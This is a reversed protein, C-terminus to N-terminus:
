EQEVKVWSQTQHSKLIAANVREARYGDAFTPYGGKRTGNRIDDYVRTFLNKVVDPYGEPHGGPYHALQAAERSMLSADKPLTQSPTERRGIWLNNPDEQNWVMSKKTGDVEMWLRNKRGASVQSVLFSGRAGNAFRILVTAADETKIEVPTGSKKENTFTENSGSEPRMRTKHFTQLDACVEVIPSGTIYQALDCWHSGIDGIARLAGGCEPEVRWNYDTEFLLWDQLYSGHVLLINGIDGTSVNEMAQRVLPYMRYNYNIANIIGAKQAADYMTKSETENMGLPKESVLHKGAAIVVMNIPYHLVNPTCNHVVQIEPDAVLDEWCKHAKPISLKKAATEAEAPTAAAIAVVEVGPVRRLAEVHVPGIFGAGIVGVKINEM